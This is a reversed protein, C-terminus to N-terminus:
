PQASFHALNKSFQGWVFDDVAIFFEFRGSAVMLFDNGIVSLTELITIWLKRPKLVLTLSIEFSGGVCMKLSNGVLMQVKLNKIIM